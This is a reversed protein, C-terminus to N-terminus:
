SSDTANPSRDSPRDGRAWTTVRHSAPARDVCARAYTRAGHGGDIAAVPQTIAPALPFIRFSAMICTMKANRM